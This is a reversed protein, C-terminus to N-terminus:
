NIGWYFPPILTILSKLLQKSNISKRVSDSMETERDDFLPAMQWIKNISARRQQGACFNYYIADGKIVM